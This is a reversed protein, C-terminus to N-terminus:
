SMSIMSACWRCLTSAGDPVASFIPSTMAEAVSGAQWFAATSRAVDSGARHLMWAKWLIVVWSSVSMALLLVAVVQTVADGQRFLDLFSM